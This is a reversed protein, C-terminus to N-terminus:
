GQNQSARALLRRAQAYISDAEEVKGLKRLVKAIERMSSGVEPSQAGYKQQKLKVSRELISLCPVYKEQEWYMSGLIELAETLKVLDVPSTGAIITVIKHVIPEAQNYKNQACLAAALNNLDDLIIPNKADLYEQKQLLIQEYLEQAQDYNGQEFYDNALSSLKELLKADLSEDLAESTGSELNAINSTASVHAEVKNAQINEHKLNEKTNNITPETVKGPNNNLTTTNTNSSLNASPVSASWSDAQNTDDSFSLGELSAWSPQQVQTDTTSQTNTAQLSNVQTLKMDANKNWGLEELIDEFSVPVSSEKHALYDLVFVAEEPSMLGKAMMYYCRISNCLIKEDVHGTLQLIKGLVLANKNTIDFAEKLSNESIISSKSLLEDFRMSAKNTIDQNCTQMIAEDLSISYNCVLKIANCAPELQLTGKYIMNQVHLVLDLIEITLFGHNILIQGLLEGTELQIELANSVDSENLINCNVLLEGLKGVQQINANLIAQAKAMLDSPPNATIYRGAAIRLIDIAQSRSLMEDRIRIQVDLAANLCSESVFNNLVLVRGLPLGIAQSKQLAQDLQNPNIIQSELLLEGLKNTQPGQGHGSIESHLVSEFSSGTSLAVKILKVATNSDIVKDKVYSQAKLATDLTQQSIYGGVLLMQGLQMRRNGPFQTVENLKRQDLVGAKVLLEGLLTDPSLSFIGQKSKFFDACM